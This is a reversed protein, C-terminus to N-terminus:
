VCCKDANIFVPKEELRDNRSVYVLFINSYNCQADDKRSNFNLEWLSRKHKVTSVCLHYVCIIITFIMIIFGTLWKNRMTSTM